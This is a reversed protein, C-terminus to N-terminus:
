GHLDLWASVASPETWVLDVEVVDVVPGTKSDRLDPQSFEPPLRVHDKATTVLQADLTEAREILARIEDPRYRHHDAFPRLEVVEAGLGTLTEALKEPRGIGAFALVRRGLFRGGTQGRAQEPEARPEIQARFVPLSSGALPAPLTGAEEGVIAIAQCKALASAVTERLPGAPMLRNNGLGTAADVVLIAASPRLSPNQLGDDMVIIDVGLTELLRAGEARDRAIVTPALRAHLLPEDGVRSADHTDPEVLLPGRESGGHGRSLIGPTRGRAILERVLAQVVPTKGSGGVTVNGVCILPISPHYPTVGLGRVLGGIAWLASIPSLLLPILGGERWWGPANM